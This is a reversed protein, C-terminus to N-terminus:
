ATRRKPEFSTMYCGNPGYERGQHNIFDVASSWDFFIAVTERQFYERFRYVKWLPEKM